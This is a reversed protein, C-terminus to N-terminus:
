RHEGHAFTSVGFQGSPLLADMGELEGAHTDSRNRTGPQHEPPTTGAIRMHPVFARHTGTFTQQQRLM